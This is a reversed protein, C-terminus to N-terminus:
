PPFTATTPTAKPSQSEAVPVPQCSILLVALMVGTLLFAIKDRLFKTMM